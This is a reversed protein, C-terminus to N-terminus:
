VMEENMLKFVPIKGTVDVEYEAKTLYKWKKQGLEKSKLEIFIEVRNSKYEHGIVKKRGNENINGIPAFKRGEGPSLVVESNFTTPYVEDGIKLLADVIKVISPYEGKNVLLIHFFWKGEYEEFVIEPVVYPRRRLRYERYAVVVSATAIVALILNGFHDNVNAIFQLASSTM